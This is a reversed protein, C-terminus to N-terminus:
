IVVESYGGRCVSAPVSFYGKAKKGIQMRTLYKKDAVKKIMQDDYFFQPSFFFDSSM